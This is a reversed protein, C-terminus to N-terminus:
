LRWVLPIVVLSVLLWWAMVPLGLKRYDGFRYGGPTMVMLNAPTAIPTLLAASGAVAILMLVPQVSTHTALAASVAIPTVILVTATNSVIQGLVATLVFMALLLLYPSGDGVVSTIVSSIRDAAGSSGIATTLPILGGILVVTQWSIARHAQQVGVVRTVVMATAAILAAIAPPVIGFALLIVMIGVIAVAVTAKAGWPVAQRRIVDPSDVVLVTRDSSLTDLAAWSGQLLLADGPVLETQELGRDRGMRQVALIVLDHARKM